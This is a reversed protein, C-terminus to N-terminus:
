NEKIYITQQKYGGIYKRNERGSSKYGLEKLARQINSILKERGTFIENLEKEYYEYLIEIISIYERTNKEELRLLIGDIARPYTDSLVARIHYRRDQIPLQYWNDPIKISLFNFMDDYLTSNEYHKEQEKIAVEIIDKEGEDLYWKEGQNYYILAETWIQAIIEPTLDNFTYKAKSKTCDIPYYRRNGTEDKLFKYDNVTAIFICQRPRDEPLIAYPLRYTDKTASARQKAIEKTSKKFATGEGLEIIWKGQIGEYFEKGDFSTIGDTFWDDQVALKSIFKSKGIGQQGVLCTITDVFCSPKKIRAIASIMTIKAIKRTYPTDDAGLYDIFLTELRPINDWTPLNSLYKKIPHYSNNKAVFNVADMVESKTTNTINYKTRFDLRLQTIWNDTIPTDKYYIKCNLENYSLNLKYENNLKLVNVYNNLTGSLDGFQNTDWVIDNNQKNKTREKLLNIAQERYPAILSKYGTLNFEKAKTLLMDFYQAIDTKSTLTYAYELVEKSKITEYTIPPIAITKQATELPKEKELEQLYAQKDFQLAQNKYKELNCQLTIKNEQLAQNCDKAGNFLFNSDAVIYPIKNEKALNEFKSISNQGGEDNDMAIILVNEPNITYEKFLKDTMSVSGLGISNADCEIGSLADIEGEFIFCYGISEKLIDANFIHTNGVKLAKYQHTEGEDQPRTARALISHESTPIIVRSTPYFRANRNNRNNWITKPHVFNSCLGINYCKQTKYSIGRQYLYESPNNKVVNLIKEVEQLEFKEYEQKKQEEEAEEQITKYRAQETQSSVHTTEEIINYKRKLIECAGRFDTSELQQVLEFINGSNNPYSSHKASFCHWVTCNTDPIFGFGGKDGCIPCDMARKSTDIGINQLYDELSTKLQNLEYETM